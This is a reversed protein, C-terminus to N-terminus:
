SSSDAHLSVESPRVSYRRSFAGPKSCLMVGEPYIIMRSTVSLACPYHEQSKSGFLPVEHCFYTYLRLM